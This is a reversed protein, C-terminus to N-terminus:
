RCKPESAPPSRAATIPEHLSPPMSGLGVQVIHQLADSVMRDVPNVLKPGPPDGLLESGRSLRSRFRLVHRARRSTPWLTDVWKAVTVWAHRGFQVSQWSARLVHTRDELCCPWFRWISSSCAPTSTANATKGCGGTRKWGPLAASLSGAGPFSPLSTCSAASPFTQM